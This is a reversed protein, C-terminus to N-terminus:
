KASAPKKAQSVADTVESKLTDAVAEVQTAAAHIDTAVAEKVVAEVPSLNVHQFISELHVVLAHLDGEVKDKLEGLKTEVDTFVSM